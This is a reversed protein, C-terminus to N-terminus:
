AEPDRRIASGRSGSPPFFLPGIPLFVTPGLLNHTSIATLASDAPLSRSNKTGGPRRVISVYRRDTAM